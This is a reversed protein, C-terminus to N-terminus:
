REARRYGGRIRHKPRHLEVGLGQLHIRHGDQTGRSYKLAGSETNNKITAYDDSERMQEIKYGEVPPSNNEKPKKWTLEIETPSIAKADLDDPPNPAVNDPPISSDSTEGSAEASRDSMGDANIAYIRYVYDEGKEVGKHTYTTSNSETDDKLTKFETDGLIKYEISYGTIPSGGDDEPPSWSLQIEDPAIDDAIVGVPKDPVDAYASYAGLAILAALAGLVIRM